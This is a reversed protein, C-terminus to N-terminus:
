KLRDQYLLTAKFLSIPLMYIELAPGTASEKFKAILVEQQAQNLSIDFLFPFQCEAFCLVM